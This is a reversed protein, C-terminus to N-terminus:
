PEASTRQRHALPYHHLMEWVLDTPTAVPVTLFAETGGYRRRRRRRIRETRAGLRLDAPRDVVVHLLPIRNWRVARPVKLGRVAAWPVYVAQGPRMLLWMGFPSVAMSPGGAMVRVVAVVAPLYLVGSLGSLILLGPAARIIWAVVGWFLWVALLLALPVAVSRHPLHPFDTPVRRATPFRTPGETPPVTFGSMPHM